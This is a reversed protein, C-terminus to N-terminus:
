TTRGQGFSYGIVIKSPSVAAPPPLAVRVADDLDAPTLRSGRQQLRAALRELFVARKDAPLNGAATMVVHLQDDALALAVM